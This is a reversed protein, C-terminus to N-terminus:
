AHRDLHEARSSRATALAALLADVDLPKGLVAAPRYGDITRKASGPFASVVIIPFPTPVRKGDTLAALVDWGSVRPMMLDLIMASPAAHDRLWALAEDGDHAIATRYGEGELFEALSQCIAAEDDVVLVVGDSEHQDVESVGGRSHRARGNAAHKM